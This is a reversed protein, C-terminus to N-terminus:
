RHLGNFKVYTLSHSSPLDPFLQDSCTVVHAIETFDGVDPIAVAVSFYFASAGGARDLSCVELSLTEAVNDVM